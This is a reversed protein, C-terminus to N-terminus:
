TFMRRNQSDSVFPKETAGIFDELVLSKKGFRTQIRNKSKPTKQSQSEPPIKKIAAKM